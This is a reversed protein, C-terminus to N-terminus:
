KKLKVLGYWALDKLFPLARLLRSDARQLIAHVRQFLGEGGPMSRLVYALPALFFYEEMQWQSFYAAIFYGVVFGLLTLGITATTSM